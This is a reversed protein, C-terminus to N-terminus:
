AFGFQSHSKERLSRNCAIRSTGLSSRHPGALFRPAAARVRLSSKAGFCSISSQACNPCLRLHSCFRRLQLHNIKHHRSPPDFGWSRAIPPNQTRQTQWNRWGPKHSPHSGLFYRVPCTRAALLRYTNCLALALRWCGTHISSSSRPPHFSRSARFGDLLLSPWAIRSELAAGRSPKRFLNEFGHTKLTRASQSSHTSKSRGAEKLARGSDQRRPRAKWM